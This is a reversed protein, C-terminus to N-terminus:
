PNGQPEVLLDRAPIRRTTFAPPAPGFIVEIAQEETTRTDECGLLFAVASFLAVLILLTRIEPTM